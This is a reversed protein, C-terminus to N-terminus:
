PLSRGPRSVSLPIWRRHRAKGIEMLRSVGYDEDGSQFIRVGNTFGQIVALEVYSQQARGWVLWGTRALLVEKRELVRVHLYVEGATELQLLSDETSLSQQNDGHGVVIRYNAQRLLEELPPSTFGYEGLEFSQHRIDQWEGRFEYLLDNRESFSYDQEVVLPQFYNNLYLGVLLLALLVFLLLKARRLLNKGRQILSLPPYNDPAQVRGAESGGVVLRMDQRARRCHICRALHERMLAQSEPSLLDEEMVMLDQVTACAIDKERM